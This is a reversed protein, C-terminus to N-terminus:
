ARIERMERADEGHSWGGDCGGDGDETGPPCELLIREANLEKRPRASPFFSSTNLNNYGIQRPRGDASLSGAGALGDCYVKLKLFATEMYLLYEGVPLDTM